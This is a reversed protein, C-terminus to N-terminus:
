EPIDQKFVGNEIIIGYETNHIDFPEGEFLISGTLSGTLENEM